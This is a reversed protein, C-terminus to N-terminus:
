TRHARAVGNGGRESRGDDSEVDGKEKGERQARQCAVPQAVIEGMIAAGCEDASEHPSEEGLGRAAVRGNGSDRQSNGGGNMGDVNCIEKQREEEDNDGEKKPVGALWEIEM